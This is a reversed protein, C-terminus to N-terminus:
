SSSPFRVCQLVLVSCCVAVCQLVSCWVEVCQLVSCWVEVCQLVSCCLAVYQLVSCCVAVSVNAEKESMKKDLSQPLSTAVM